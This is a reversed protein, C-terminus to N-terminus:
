GSEDSLNVEEIANMTSPDKDVAAKAEESMQTVHSFHAMKGFANDLAIRMAKEFERKLQAPRGYGDLFVMAMFRYDGEPGDPIERTSM